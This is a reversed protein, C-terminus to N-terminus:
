YRDVLRKHMMYYHFLRPDNPEDQHYGMSTLWKDAWTGSEPKMDWDVFLIHVGHGEARAELTKIMLTGIGNQRDEESVTFSNIYGCVPDKAVPNYYPDYEMLTFATGTLNALTLINHKWSGDHDNYCTM